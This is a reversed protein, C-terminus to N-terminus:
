LGLSEPSMGLTSLMTSIMPNDRLAQMKALSQARWEQLEEVESTLVRIHKWMNKMEDRIEENEKILEGVMVGPDIQTSM